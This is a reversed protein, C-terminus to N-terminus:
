RVVFTTQLVRTNPLIRAVNEMNRSEQYDSLQVRLAHRGRRLGATPIRIAGGAFRASAERGDIRVVLSSPDVGSGRDAASLVLASGRKVTRARLRVLPPAVDNV